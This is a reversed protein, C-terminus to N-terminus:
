LIFNGQKTKKSGASEKKAPRLLVNNGSAIVCQHACNQCEVKDGDLKKYLYVEKM